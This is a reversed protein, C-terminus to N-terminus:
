NLVSCMFLIHSTLDGEMSPVTDQLLRVATAIGGKPNRSYWKPQCGTHRFVPNGYHNMYDVKTLYRKTKLGIGCVLINADMKIQKLTKLVTSRDM